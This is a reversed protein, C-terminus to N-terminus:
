AGIRLRQSQAGEHIVLETLVVRRSLHDPRHCLEDFTFRAGGPIEIERHREIRNSGHETDANPFLLNWTKSSGQQVIYLYGNDNSEVSVRIKDGSRFVSDTDVEDYRGDAVVMEIKVKPLLDVNYEQGRNTFGDGWGREDGISARTYRHGHVGNDM